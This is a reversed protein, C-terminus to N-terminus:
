IIIIIMNALAWVLVCPSTMEPPRAERNIYIRIGQAFAAKVSMRVFGGTEALAFCDRAPGGSGVRPWSIAPRAVRDCSWGVRGTGPKEM